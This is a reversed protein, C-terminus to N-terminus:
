ADCSVIMTIGTGATDTVTLTGATSSPDNHTGGVISSIIIDEDSSYTFNAVQGIGTFVAIRQYATTLAIGNITMNGAEIKASNIGKADFAFLGKIESFGGTGTYRFGADYPELLLGSPQGLGDIKRNYERILHNDFDDYRPSAGSSYLGTIDKRYQMWIGSGTSYDTHVLDQTTRPM